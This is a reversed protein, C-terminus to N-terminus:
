EAGKENYMHLEVEQCVLNTCCRGIGNVAMRAGCKPCAPISPTPPRITIDKNNMSKIQKQGAEWAQQMAEKTSGPDPYESDNEPTDDWQAFWAEFEINTKM